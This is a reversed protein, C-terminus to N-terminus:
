REKQVIDVKYDYDWNDYYEYGDDTEKVKVWKLTSEGNESIWMIDDGIDGTPSKSTKGRSEYLNIRITQNPYKDKLYQKAQM